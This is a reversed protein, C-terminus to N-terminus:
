TIRAASREDLGLAADPFALRGLLHDWDAHTAILGRVDFGGNEALTAVADLEVPLVPSDVLISEPQEGPGRVLTASTKWVSSTVVVVDPHLSLARM